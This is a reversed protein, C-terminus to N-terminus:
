ERVVPLWAEGNPGFVDNADYRRENPKKNIAAFLQPFKSRYAEVLRIVKPTYEWQIREEEDDEEAIESRSDVVLVSDGARGM